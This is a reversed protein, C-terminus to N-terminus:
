EFLRLFCISPEDKVDGDSTKNGLSLSYLHFSNYPILCSSLMRVQRSIPLDYSKIESVLRRILVIPFPIMVTMYCFCLWWPLDYFFDSESISLYINFFFFFLIPAFEFECTGTWGLILTSEKFKAIVLCDCIQISLVGTMCSWMGLGAKVM